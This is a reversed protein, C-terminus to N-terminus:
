FTDSTTWSRCGHTCGYKMGKMHLSKDDLQVAPLCGAIGISMLRVETLQYIRSLNSEPVGGLHVSHLYTFSDTSVNTVNCRHLKVQTLKVRTSM